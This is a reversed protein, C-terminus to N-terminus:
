HYYNNCCTYISGNQCVTGNVGTAVIVIMLHTGSLSWKSYSYTVGTTTTPIPTGEIFRFKGNDDKINELKPATTIESEDKFKIKAVDNIDNNNMDIDVFFKNIDTSNYVWHVGTYDYSVTETYGSAFYSLCIGQGDEKYTVIYTHKQNGTTKVVIDGAKLGNIQEDNLQQINSVTEKVPIDITNLNELLKLLYEPILRRGYVGKPTDMIKGM